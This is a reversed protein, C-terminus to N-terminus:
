LSRYVAEARRALAGIGFQAARARSAAALRGALGPEELVRLVAAAYDEPRASSVLLGTEGDAVVEPIGDVAAAVAPVDAALAEILVGGLAERESPLVLV